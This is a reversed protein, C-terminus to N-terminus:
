FNPSSKEFCGWAIVIEDALSHYGAYGDTHLYGSVGKLFEIPRKAKHDSQYDYLIIPM